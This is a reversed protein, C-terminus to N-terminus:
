LGCKELLQDRSFVFGKNRALFVLLDFEKPTLELTTKGISAQHRAIDVEIDGPLGHARVRGVYQDAICSATTVRLVPTLLFPVRSALSAVAIPQLASSLEILRPSDLRVSERVAGLMRGTQRLGKLLPRMVRPDYYDDFTRFAARMRRTAVRM